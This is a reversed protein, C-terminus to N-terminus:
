AHLDLNGKLGNEGEDKMMATAKREADLCYRRNTSGWRETNPKIVCHYVLDTFGVDNGGISVTGVNPVKPDKWEDIQRNLGIATDGSCVKKEFPITTSFTKL